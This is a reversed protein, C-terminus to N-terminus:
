RVSGPITMLRVVIQDSAARIRLEKELGGIEESLAMIQKVLVNALKVVPRPLAGDSGEIVAILRGVHAPGTPAM